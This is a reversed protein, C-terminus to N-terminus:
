RTVPYLRVEIIGTDEDAIGGLLYDRGVEYVKLAAPLAVRAVVNGTPRFLTWTVTANRASPYAQVWVLGTADVLLDRTAPLTRPMPMSRFDTTTRQRTSEGLEAVTREIAADVDAATTAVPTHPATLPRLPKGTLDFALVSLSDGLAIYAASAAIALAPERGIARPGSGVPKGNNMIGFRESGPLKGLSVGATSDAPSVWFATPARYVGDRMDRPSEWGMHVFQARDNCALRYTQSAFRFARTYTLASNFVQVREGDIDGTFLENGCRLVWLLYGVEGPGKGKRALARVFKGQEDFVLLAHDGGRNGVVIHKNPLRVAGAVATIFAGPQEDRGIRLTPAGVRVSQASSVAAVGCVLSAVCLFTRLVRM